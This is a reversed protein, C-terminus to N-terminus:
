NRIALFAKATAFLILAEVVLFVILRLSNVVRAWGWFTSAVAATDTALQTGADGLAGWFLFGILLVVNGGVFVKLPAFFKSM